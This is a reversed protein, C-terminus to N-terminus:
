EFKSSSIEGSKVSEAFSSVSKKSEDDVIQMEQFYQLKKETKRRKKNRVLNQLKKEILANLEKISKGYNRFSKKKQNCKIVM